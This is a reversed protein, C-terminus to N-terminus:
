LPAADGDQRQPRAAVTPGQGRGDPGLELALGYWLAVAAHGAEPLDALLCDGAQGGDSAAAANEEARAPLAGDRFHAVPADDCIDPM